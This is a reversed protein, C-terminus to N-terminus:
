SLTALSDSPSDESPTGAFNKELDETEDKTLASLRSAVDFLRSLVASSKKGLAEADADAFLAQGNDNCLSKVLLTARLNPMPKKGGDTLKQVRQQWADIEAGTLCRVWVSCGWETVEIEERCLDDAALICDKLSM